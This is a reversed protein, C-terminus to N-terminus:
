ERWGGKRVIQEYAVCVFDDIWKQDPEARLPSNDGIAELEAAKVDFYDLVADMEMEGNRIRLLLDVNPSPFEVTGYKFLQVGQEAIRVAHYLAKWDAGDAEMAQTARRGAEDVPKRYCKLAEKVNVTMPLQRGYVDLYRGDNKEVIKVGPINTINDPLTGIRANIAEYPTLFECVRTFTELRSGRLSYKIAQGKCYGAFAKTNRNLIRSRNEVICDWTWSQFQPTVFLMEVPITQMDSALKLYRQLEFSEVDVDDAGNKDSGGSSTSIVFDRKPRLLIDRASPLHVAKYDTDSDPTNTGYLRSGAITRMIETPTKFM